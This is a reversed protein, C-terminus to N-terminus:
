SAHTPQAHMLAKPAIGRRIDILLFRDQETFSM